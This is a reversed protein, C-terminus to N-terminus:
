DLDRNLKHHLRSCGALLSLRPGHYSGDTIFGTAHPLILVCAVGMVQGQMAQALARQLVDVVGRDYPVEAAEVPAGHLDVVKAKTRAKRRAM